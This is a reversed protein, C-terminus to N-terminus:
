ASLLIAASLLIRLLVGGGPGAQAFLKDAFAAGFQVSGIGGLVLLEPPATRM